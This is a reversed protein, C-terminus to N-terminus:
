LKIKVNPFQAQVQGIIALTWLTQGYANTPAGFSCDTKLAALLNAQTSSLKITGAAALTDVAATIPPNGASGVCIANYYSMAQDAVASSTPTTGATQCGALAACLFAAVLATMASTEM